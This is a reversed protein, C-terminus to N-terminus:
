FGRLHEVDVQAAISDGVDALDGTRPLRDRRGVDAAYAYGVDLRRLAKDTLLDNYRVYSFLAGGGIVTEAHADAVELDVDPAAWRVQGLIRCLLDERVSAQRLVSTVLEQASMRDPVPRRRRGRDIGPLHEAVGSGVSVLLLRDAGTPWELRYSELTSMLLLQMSLNTTGGAAGDVFDFATPERAVVPLRVPEYRRPGALTARVLGWLPLALNSGVPDRNFMADPNTSVPWPSDTTLNYLGLLLHCSSIAAVDGLALQGDDTAFWGRLLKELDDARRTTGPRTSRVLAVPGNALLWGLMRRRHFIVSASAKLRQEVESMPHGTAILAAVLGGSNTGAVYDFWQGLTLGPDGTHERLVTELRRLIRVSLYIRTGDGDISLLKRQDTSM